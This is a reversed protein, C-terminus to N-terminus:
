GDVDGEIEIIEFGGEWQLKYLGPPLSLQLGGNAVVLTEIIQRTHDRISVEIGDSPAAVGNAKLAVFRPKAVKVKPPVFEIDDKALVDPERSINSDTLPDIHDPMTKYLHNVLDATRIGGTTPNAAAGRLGRLLEHTFVGHYEGTAGLPLEVALLPFTAACFLVHPPQPSLPPGKELPPESAVLLTRAQTCCDMWLVYEQFYQSNLLHDHWTTALVHNVFKQSFADSTVLARKTRETAIGHGSLYIYLRRGVRPGRGSGINAESQKIIGSLWHEIDSRLPRPTDPWNVRNNTTSTLLTVNQVGCVTKLCDEVAQADNIPGRLNNPEAPTRGFSPYNNIGVVLAWDEGQGAM